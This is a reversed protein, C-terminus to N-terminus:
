TIPAGEAGKAPPVANASQAQALEQVGDTAPGTLWAELRVFCLFACLRRM